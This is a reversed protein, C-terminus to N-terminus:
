VDTNDLIVPWTGEWSQAKRISSYCGPRGPAQTTNPSQLCLLLEELLVPKSASDEGKGTGGEEEQEKSIRERGEWWSLCTHWWQAVCVGLGLCYKSFYKWTVYLYVVNSILHLVSVVIVHFFNITYFKCYADKPDGWEWGNMLKLSIECSLHCKSWLFCEATM